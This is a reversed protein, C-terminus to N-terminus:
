GDHAKDYARIVQLLDEPTPKPAVAEVAINMREQLFTSTTPGISAVRAARRLSTTTADVSGLDFHRRLFPM